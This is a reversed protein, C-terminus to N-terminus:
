KMHVVIFQACSYVVEVFMRFYSTYTYTFSYFSVDVYSANIYDNEYLEGGATLPRLIVRNCTIM